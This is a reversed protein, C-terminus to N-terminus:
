HCCAFGSPGRVNQYVGKYVKGYSGEGELSHSETVQGDLNRSDVQTLDELLQLLWPPRQQFIM